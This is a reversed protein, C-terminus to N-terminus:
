HEIVEECMELPYLPREHGEHGVQGGHKKGSKTKRNPKFGKVRDKSPPQSSNTSNLRIQEELLEYAGRLQQQEGDLQNVRRTLEEIVQRVSLPTREWDAQSIQEISHAVPEEM